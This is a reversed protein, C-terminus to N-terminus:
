YRTGATVIPTNIAHWYEWNQKDEVRQKPIHLMNNLILLYQM